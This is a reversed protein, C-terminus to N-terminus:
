AGQQVKSFAEWKPVTKMVQIIQKIRSPRIEHLPFCHPMYDAAMILVGGVLDVMPETWIIDSKPEPPRTLRFVGLSEDFFVGIYGCLWASWFRNNLIKRGDQQRFLPGYAEKLRNVRFTERIGTLVAQQSQTHVNMRATGVDSDICHPAALESAELAFGAVMNMILGSENVQLRAFQLSRRSGERLDFRLKALEPEFNL